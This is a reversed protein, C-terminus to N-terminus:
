NSAGRMMEDRVGGNHDSIEAVNVNKEKKRKEFHLSSTARLCALHINQQTRHNIYRNQTKEERAAKNLCRDFLMSLHCM